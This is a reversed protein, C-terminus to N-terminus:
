VTKRFRPKWECSIAVYVIRKRFAAENEKASKAETVRTEGGSKRAGKKAVAKGIGKTISWATKPILPPWPTLLSRGRQPREEENTTMRRVDNDQPM